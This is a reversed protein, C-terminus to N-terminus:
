RADVVGEIREQNNLAYGTRRIREFEGFSYNINIRHTVADIIIESFIDIIPLM